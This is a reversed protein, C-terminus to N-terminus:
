PTPSTELISRFTIRDISEMKPIPSTARMETLLAATLDLKTTVSWYHIRSVGENALLERQTTGLQDTLVALPLTRTRPHTRIRQIVESLRMELVRDVLFVYEIPQPEQILRMTERASKALLTRVGLLSLQSSLSDSLETSGGILLALPKAELNQM